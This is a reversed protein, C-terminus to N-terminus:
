LWAAPLAVVTRPRNKPGVKVTVHETLEAGAAAEEETPPDREILVEVRQGGAASSRALEVAVRTADAERAVRLFGAAIVKLEDANPPRDSM